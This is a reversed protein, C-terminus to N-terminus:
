GIGTQRLSEKDVSSLRGQILAQIEALAMTMATQYTAVAQTAVEDFVAFNSEESAHAHATTGGAAKAIQDLFERTDANESRAIAVLADVLRAPQASLPESAEVAIKM